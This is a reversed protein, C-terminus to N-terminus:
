QFVVKQRLTALMSPGIGSVADLEEFNKFPGNSQRFDTIRKALAPGIGPLTELEIGSASNINIKGNAGVAGTGASGPAGPTSFQGSPMSTGPPVNAEGRRPIRIQQGDGIEAALNISEPAADKGLGGAKNVADLVRSGLRLEFVGPHKVAGIVHVVVISGAPAGAAEPPQTAANLTSETAVPLKAQDPTADDAVKVNEVPRPGGLPPNIAISISIWSLAGIVLVIVASRGIFVRVRGPAPALGSDPAHEAWDHRGM